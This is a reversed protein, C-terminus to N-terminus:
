SALAEDVLKEMSLTPSTRKEYSTGNKLITYMLEALKRAVAVIAIKKGKSQVQTMYLYKEKLAGANRARVHTWAALILLSRLNRNGCKTIHGLRVITSSIDLRPVLGAAAGIASANPFRSGDGLFAIFSSALQKGVGPIETLREINRDGEVEKELLEEVENIQGDIIELRELSREAQALFIGKLIKISESRSSGTALDKKKMETIGCELFIAHIRNIEKTRDHKLQRLETLIQRLNEEHETPLEVKPLEGNEYKQVLRALKLADEKDNKKLSRYILAIQSPNLLVVECGVQKEMERAMVMALSCVEIAVRDTSRLKKYLAKRGAPSTLGNTGTVKGGSCIIKIEYTRKGLDIGVFRKGEM